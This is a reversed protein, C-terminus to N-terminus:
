HGGTMTSTGTMDSSTAPGPGLVFGLTQSPNPCDQGNVPNCGPTPGTTGFSIDNVSYSLGINTATGITNTVFLLQYDEFTGSGVVPIITATVPSDAANFASAIEGAIGQVDAASVAAGSAGYFVLISKAGFQMSINGGGLVGQVTDSYIRGSIDILITAPTQLAATASHSHTGSVGTATLNFGGTPWSAPMAITMTSTATGAVAFSLSAPSCGLSLGAPAGSCTITVPVSLAGNSTVTVNYLISVNGNASVQVPTSAQSLSISFDSDTVALSVTASHVDAGSTGNITLPSTAAPTSSTTSVTMTTTGAGTLTAPSFSATAGTPLGTVTPTVTGTFGNVAAVTVTYTTSSGATITQTAPNVALTFDVVSLTVTTNHVDAGSTGTVPITLNGGPTNATTTMTMTTSGAGGTIITPNFTAGAASPTVTGTFGNVAAVTVTYTTSGGAVVTQTAPTATLTFDVVSL